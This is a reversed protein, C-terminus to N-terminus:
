VSFFQIHTGCIAIIIGFLSADYDGVIHGAITIKLSKSLADNSEKLNEKTTKLSSELDDVRGDVNVIAKSFASVQSVLFKVKKNLSANQSNLCFRLSEFWISFFTTSEVRYGSCSKNQM